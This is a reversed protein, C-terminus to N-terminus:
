APCFASGQLAIKYCRLELLGATPCLQDCCKGLRNPANLRVEVAAAATVAALVAALALCHQPWVRQWLTECGNNKEPCKRLTVSLLLRIVAAGKARRMRRSQLLPAELRVCM